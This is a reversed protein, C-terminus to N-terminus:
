VASDRSTVLICATHLVHMTSERANYSKCFIVTIKHCASRSIYMGNSGYIGYPHAVSQNVTRNEKVIISIMWNKSNVIITLLLLQVIDYYDYCTKGTKHM